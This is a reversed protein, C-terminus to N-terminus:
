KKVFVNKFKPHPQYQNGLVPLRNFLAPLKQNPDTIIQPMDASFNQFLAQVTNYEDLNSFHRESLSFNLYPTAARNYLYDTQDDALVLLTYGKLHPLTSKAPIKLYATQLFSNEPFRRYATIFFTSLVGSLLVLAALEAAWWKKRISLFFHTGFFATPPILMLFQFPNLTRSLQTSLLATVAWLFMFQMSRLQFNVLRQNRVFSRFVAIGLFAIMPLAVVLPTSFTINSLKELTLSRLYCFYFPNGANSFYFFLFTIGVTFAFGFLILFIQRLNISAVLLFGVLIAILFLVSPTYFLTALGIFFGMSFLDPDSQPTELHQWARSLAFLLPSLALLAPSLTYFDFFLHSFLIYLFAPFLSNETYLLKRTIFQFHFAQTATLLLALLQYALVSRGFFVDLLGYMLASLPPMEEWVSKYLMWGDALREGVLMWRLEERLVEPHSFIFLLRMTLLFLALVAFRDPLLKKFYQIL